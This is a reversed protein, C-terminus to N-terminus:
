AESDVNSITDTLTEAEVVATTNAQVNVPAEAEVNGLIKGETTAKM